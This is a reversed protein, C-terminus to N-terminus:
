GFPAAALVHWEVGDNPIVVMQPTLDGAAIYFHDTGPDQDSIVFSHEKVLYNCTADVIRQPLPKSSSALLDATLKGMAAQLKAANGAAGLAKLEDFNPPAVDAVKEGYKDLFEALGGRYDVQRTARGGASTTKAGSIIVSIQDSAGVTLEKAM